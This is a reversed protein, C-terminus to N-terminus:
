SLHSSSHRGDEKADKESSSQAAKLYRTRLFYQLYGAIVSYAILLYFGRGLSTDISIFGSNSEGAIKTVLNPFKPGAPPDVRTQFADASVTVSLRINLGKVLWM